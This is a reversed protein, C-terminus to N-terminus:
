VETFPKALHDIRLRKKQQLSLDALCKPKFACQQCTAESAALPISEISYRAVDACTKMATIDKRIMEYATLVESEKVRVQHVVWVGKRWGITQVEFQEVTSPLGNRKMSWLVMGLAELQEEASMQRAQMDLRILQWKSQKRVVLDPSAFLDFGEIHESETRDLVSWQVGPRNSLQLFVDTRWLLKMRHNAFQLLADLKAPGIRENNQQILDKLHGRLSVEAVSATWEVGSRLADLQEIITAKLARLMMNWATIQESYHRSRNTGIRAYRLAWATPCKFFLDRQTRSWSPSYQNMDAILWM